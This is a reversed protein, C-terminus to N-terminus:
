AFLAVLLELMTMLKTSGKENNCTQWIPKLHLCLSEVVYLDQPHVRGVLVSLKGLRSCQWHGL